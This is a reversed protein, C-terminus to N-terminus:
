LAERLIRFIDTNNLFGHLKEAGDGEGIALVDEVTNL